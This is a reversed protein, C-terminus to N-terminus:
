KIKIKVKAKKNTGDTSMATVTVTKGKGAKKATVKGKSNVSAYKKNSVTWKLSKNANKGNTKVTAKLTMSKGVKLIKGAKKIQVKTVANKMIKIKYTAKKGSRDKASATIKVTKGKGAKKTTVVGKSNVTAYKKNSTKWTVKPNSANKPSVSVKLSVKKGATIKKSIGSISLKKVKITQQEQSSGGQAQSDEGTDSVSGSLNQNNGGPNQGDAGPNQNSGGPNQSDGGPNQSGGGPNQGAGGPNEGAAGDSIDGAIIFDYNNDTYNEAKEAKVEFFLTGVDASYNEAEENWLYTATIVEGRKITGLEMSKVLEGDRSGKRIELTAATDVCSENAVRTEALRGFAFANDTVNVALDTYGANFSYSNDSADTEGDAEATVTIERFSFDAPVMYDAEAVTTEGPLLSESIVTKTGAIDIAYGEATMTGNNKVQISVKAKTGPVFTTEDCYAHEVTLNVSRKAMLVCLDTQTTGTKKYLFLLSGDTDFIGRPNYVDADTDSIRISKSWTDKGPEYISGEIQKTGNEDVATWILALQGEKGSVVQFDDTLAGTDDRYVETEGGSQDSMLISGDRYWFKLINSGNKVYRANSDLVTNQTSQSGSGKTIIERDELTSLDGDKDLTYSIEYGNKYSTDLATVLGAYEVFVNQKISGSVGGSLVAYRIKNKGSTFLLNNDTNQLYAVYPEGSGNLSVAPSAALIGQQSVTVAKSFGEGPTFVSLAVTSAGAVDSLSANNAFVRSLNQWAVYIHEGDSVVSPAFDATGDDAVAKPSSWTDTADDYLSYVLVSNNITERGTTEETWLIMKTGGAEAMKLDAQSNVNTKLVTEVSAKETTALAYPQINSEGLWLSEEGPNSGDSLEFDDMSLESLSIAGNNASYEEKPLLKKEAEALKMSYNFNLIKVKLSLSGKVSLKTSDPNGLKISFPLSGKGEAGVTAVAMVGVGGEASLSPELSLTIGSNERDVARDTWNYSFKGEAGGDLGISTKAYVPIVGVTYQGQLGASVSSKLKLKGSLITKGNPNVTGELYGCVETKGSISSTLPTDISEVVNKWQSLNLDKPQHECLKKWEEWEKNDFADGKSLTGNKGITARVKGDEMSIDIKVGSIKIGASQGSLFAVDEGLTGTSDTEVLTLTNGSSASTMSGGAIKFWTKETVSTGDSATLKAYIPYKAQFAKGMDLNFKGDTSTYSIGNEQYLSYSGPTKGNWLANMQIKIEQGSGGEQYNRSSTMADYVAGYSTTCMLTSIYPNNKDGDKLKLMNAYITNSDWLLDANQHYIDKYFYYTRYGEKTITVKKNALPQGTLTNPILAKGNEDTSANGFDEVQAVADKLPKALETGDGTDYVNFEIRDNSVASVGWTIGTTGGATGSGGGEGSTGDDATSWLGSSLNIHLAPVLADINDDVYGGYKDVYGIDSVVAAYYTSYGPSRLWWHCNGRYIGSTNNNHAGIAHAFDSDQVWRSASDTNYNECFGYSPDIVEGISLLSVKDNTNNGGDTNYYPNDENVVTQSVVAGQEAKSFATNYFTGNLWNRLTCNEWTISGGPDHYDKCDLGKDAVVFLTSGNNQLVKWKIREWKFYRYTSDGFYITNNTDDISIRRYKIGGVWADGNGDYGAGTIASTLASGTVETQPYSGFYVYSWDTTDTGDDEKTCHHVPNAPSGSFLEEEVEELPLDETDEPLSNDETPEEQSSEPLSEETPLEQPQSLSETPEQWTEEPPTIEGAQSIEGSQATGEGPATEGGSEASDNEIMNQSELATTKAWAPIYPATLLMSATLIFSLIKQKAKKKM